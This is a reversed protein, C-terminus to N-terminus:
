ARFVVGYREKSKETGCHECGYFELVSIYNGRDRCYYAPQVDEPMYNVWQHKGSCRSHPDEELYTETRTNTDPDYVSDIERKMGAM